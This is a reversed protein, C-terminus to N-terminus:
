LPPHAAANKARQEGDGVVLDVGLVPALIEWAHGQEMDASINPLHGPLEKSLVIDPDLNSKHPVDQSGQRDDQKTWEDPLRVGPRFGIHRKFLLYLM